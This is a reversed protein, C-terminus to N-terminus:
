AAQNVLCEETGVQIRHCAAGYGMVRKLSPYVRSSALGIALASVGAKGWKAEAEASLEPAEPLNKAAAEGLRFALSADEGAAGFNRALLAKLIDPSIGQELSMDVVIQVCPGCDEAMVGALRVAAAAEAPVAGQYSSFASQFIGFRVFAGTSGDLMKHMYSTDYGYTEEMKRIQGRLFRRLM